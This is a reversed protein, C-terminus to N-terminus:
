GTVLASLFLSVLELVPVVVMALATWVLALVGLIATVLVLALAFHKLLEWVTMKEM